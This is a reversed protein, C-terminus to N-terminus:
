GQDQMLLVGGRWDGPPEITLGLADISRKPLPTGKDQLHEALRWHATRLPVLIQKPAQGFTHWVILVQKGWTIVVAQWGTAHRWSPGLESYRRSTGHRIIGAAANYFKIAHQTIRWQDPSLRHVEGSLCMRGLFTAALSYVLRAETDAGRLVAWVQTQSPRVLRHLNAAIIPIEPTEHADSFSGMTSLAQFSPELRHGGSSCNEIVLDPLERHVTRLFRQVGALHQRLGEGPSEAGDCGLGITDNYDIKLYGFGNERLLRIVKDALYDHVWPDRFDWFRRTGVQLPLGDLHLQHKTERFADTGANVVEHEFWIGPVLGRERIADCTARLGNPFAARNVRWDGNQQLLATPDREAWGDDIVLYRVGSGRLRDALAILNDHTPNGWSTCWENFIVPMGEPEVVPPPETAEVLADCVDELTGEVCAVVAEPAAFTEGPALTKWWHGFERDALGGSLGLQDGRRFVEMQWSGPAALQAGWFVGAARDEVAVFPFWGNVPMSGVQGFREAAVGYGSWSRELQLEELSRCDHRGEASWASRFRHVHLRGPADSSHFPTIGALSFSSLLELTLPEKGVNTVHTKVRLARQGPRHTLRHEIELGRPSRLVTVITRGGANDTEDRQEVFELARTSAGGRLSRGQAFGAPRPDGRLHIQALSEPDRAPMPLWRAPVALVYSEDLNVRPEVAAARAHAPRL